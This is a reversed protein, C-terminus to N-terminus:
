DEPRINIAYYWPDSPNNYKKGVKVQFVVNKISEYDCDKPSVAFGNNKDITCRGKPGIVSKMDASMTGHVIDGEKYSELEKYSVSKKNSKKQIPTLDIKGKSKINFVTETESETKFIEMNSHTSEEVESISHSNDFVDQMEETEYNDIVDCISSLQEITNETVREPEMLRLGGYRFGIKGRLYTKNVDKLEDYENANIFFAELGCPLKVYGKRREIKSIVAEVILADEKQSPQLICHADNEDGMYSLVSLSSREFVEALASSEKFYKQANKIYDESYTKSNIAMASYCVALYYLAKLKGGGSKGQEEYLRLWEVLLNVAEDFPFEELSSMKFWFINEYSDVDSHNRQYQLVRAVEDRDIQTLRSMAWATNNKNKINRLGDTRAYLISTVFQRGYYLKNISNCDEFLKRYHNVAAQPDGMMQRHFARVQNYIRISQSMYTQTEDYSRCLNGLQDLSSSLYDCIDLYMPDHECFSFDETGRAKQALKLCEMYLQCQATYGYPSAPNIEISKEFGNKAYIMWKQLMADFENIDFSDDNMLSSVEAKASQIKRLYLMGKMHHNDDVNTNTDIADSILKEAKVYLDDDYKVRKSYAQEFLYRGYHAKFVPDDPYNKVLYSYIEEPRQENSLVDQILKAFKARQEDLADKFDSGRRLIFVGYLMDKDFQGLVGVKECEKLFDVSIQTVSLKWKLGWVNNLIPLAFSQYRPRWCGTRNGEEDIEEILLREIIEKSKTYGSFSPFYDKILNQNLARDSYYASFAVFGCFLQLKESIEGMFASVYDNLRDSTIDDHIKLPFDVVEIGESIEQEDFLPTSKDKKYISYKEMFLNADEFSLVSPLTTVNTGGQIQKSTTRFVRLVLVNRQRSNLRSTLKNINEDAVKGGEVVILLFDNDLKKESLQLIYDFTKENYAYLFVPLCNFSDTESSLKCIDFALRRSMTTGGAGPHHKLTYTSTKQKPKSLISIINQKFKEYGVRKVDYDSALENWTIESGYYFNWKNEKNPIFQGFIDIGAEHYRQIEDQAFSVKKKTSTASVGVSNEKAHESIYALFDSLSIHLYKHNVISDEAWDDIGSQIDRDQSFSFIDCRNQVTKEDGFVQNLSNFIYPAYKSENIFNLIYFHSANNKKVVNSLIEILLKSRSVKWNKFDYTIPEGTGAEGHCFFWNLMTSGVVFDEGSKIPHAKEQWTQSSVISSIDKGNHRGFDCVLSCPIMFLSEALNTDVDHIESPILVIFRNGGESCFNSTANYLWQLEESISHLSTEASAIDFQPFSEILAKTKPFLQKVEDIFTTFHGACQKSERILDLNSSCTHESLESAVSYFKAMQDLSTDVYKKLRKTVKDKDSPKWIQPYKLYVSRKAITAFFAGEPVQEQTTNTINWTNNAKNFVIDNQGNILKEAQDNSDIIEYIMYKLIWEICHRADGLFHKFDGKNFFFVASNYETTLQKKINEM